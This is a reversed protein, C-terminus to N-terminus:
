TGLFWGPFPLSLWFSLISFLIVEPTVMEIIILKLRADSLCRSGCVRPFNVEQTCNSTTQDKRLPEQNMRNPFCCHSREDAMPKGFVTCPPTALFIPMCAWSCFSPESTPGASPTVTCTLSAGDTGRQTRPRSAAPGFSRASGLREWVPLYQLTGAWCRSRWVSARLQSVAPECVCACPLSGLLWGRSLPKM